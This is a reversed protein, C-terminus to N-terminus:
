CMWSRRRRARGRGRPHCRRVRLSSAQATVGMRLRWRRHVDAPEQVAWHEADFTAPIPIIDAGALDAQGTALNAVAPRGGGLYEMLVLNTGGECRNPFLGCDTNSMERALDRQALQPLMTFREAPVGNAILLNSFIQQQSDGGVGDFRLYPSKGMEWILEGWLNHWACVLHASSEPHAALFAAFAAIVLDQGKRWEFKGGSFVRFAGDRARPLPRFIDQDIGQMLLRANAIGRERMRDLCWTSGAFVVDFRAANAAANPGLVFEFFTYGVNIPACPEVLPNLDNDQLPTFLAQADALDSLEVREGLERLLNANCVGWGWGEGPTGAYHLKM